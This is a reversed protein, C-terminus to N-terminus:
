VFDGNRRLKAVRTRLCRYFNTRLPDCDQDSHAEDDTPVATRRSSNSEPEGVPEEACPGSGALSKHACALKNFQEQHAFHVRPLHKTECRKGYRRRVGPLQNMLNYCGRKLAMTLCENTGLFHGGRLECTDQSMATDVYFILVLHASRKEPFPDVAIVADHKSSHRLKDGNPMSAWYKGEASPKAWHVAMASAPTAQLKHCNPNTMFLVDQCSLNQIVSFAANTWRAM